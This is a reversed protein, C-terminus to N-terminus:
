RTLRLQGETLWGESGIDSRVFYVWNRGQLDGDLITLVTGPLITPGPMTGEADQRLLIAWGPANLDARVSVRQGEHFTPVPAGRTGPVLNRERRFAEIKALLAEDQKVQKAPVSSPSTTASASATATPSDASSSPTIPQDPALFSWNQEPQNAPTATPPAKVPTSATSIPAATPSSPTPTDAQTLFAWDQEVQKSPAPTASTPNQAAAPQPAPTEDLLPRLSETVMEPETAVYAGGGILVFFLVWLLPRGHTQKPPKVPSPSGITAEDPWVETFELSPEPQRAFLVGWALPRVPLSSGGAVALMSGGERARM